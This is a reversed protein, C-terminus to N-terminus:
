FFEVKLRNLFILRTGPCKHENFVRKPFMQLRVVWERAVVRLSMEPPRGFLKCQVVQERSKETSLIKKQVTSM